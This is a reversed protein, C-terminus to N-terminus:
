QHDRSDPASVSSQRVSVILEMYQTDGLGYHTFLSLMKRMLSEASEAPHSRIYATIENDPQQLNLYLRIGQYMVPLLQQPPMSRNLLVQRYIGTFSGLQLETQKVEYTQEQVANFYVTGQFGIQELYALMTLLNIQCFMDEGFWLVICRYENDNLMQLPQLTVVEYQERSIHHGQARVKCFSDSFIDETTEHVCMAENFPVYDSGGMWQQAKFQEYMTQGNLVNLIQHEYLSEVHQQLQEIGQKSSIDMTLERGYPDINLQIYSQLPQPHQRFAHPTVGFIDKFSRSFAEQSSYGHEVAIDIIREETEALRISSLFTRRLQIYRKMSIGTHHRFLFSCYYPSYGVSRGLEALSFEGLLHQELWNIMEQVQTSM